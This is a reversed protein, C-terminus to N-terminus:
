TRVAEDAFSEAQESCNGRNRIIQVTELSADQVGHLHRHEQRLAEIIKWIDPTIKEGPCILPIGPPYPIVAEGAVCDVAESWAIREKKAFWADRPTMVMPPLTMEYNNGRISKVEGLLPMTIAETLPSKERCKEQNSIKQFVTDQKVTEQKNLETVGATAQVLRDIDEQTNAPTLVALATTGESLELDVGYEAFMRDSFEQATMQLGSVDMTLRSEDLAFIGYQGELEKGPCHMGPIQTLKERTVRATDQLRDLNEQGKRYLERRTLDLSTMLLYSPSTSQVLKLAEDVRSEEVIDSKLHLVSSQTLSGTVKHWSQVCLDAGCQLSGKPLRDSFYLHGGHAEDVLLPIGHEHCIDAISRVDSLMGYYNPSVLAVARIDPEDNLKKRVIEPRIGGWLQLEPIYEPMMWVPVAGSLILGMLMSKHANRPLLVKDGPRLTALLMAENGCTTGNVLFWSRRAGYLEAALTQAELIAGDPAHLDDLGHAETLDYGFINGGVDQIWEEAIGRDFRHGPICFYVPKKDKYAKVTEFLPATEQRNHMIDEKRKYQCIFIQRIIGYDKQRDGSKGEAKKMPCNIQYKRSTKMPKKISKKQNAKKQKKAKKEAQKKM